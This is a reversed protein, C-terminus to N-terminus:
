LLRYGGGTQMIGGSLIHEVIARRFSTDAPADKINDKKINVFLYDLGDYSEDHMFIKFMKQFKVVNSSPPLMKEFAPDFLWTFCGAAKYDCDFYKPFFAKAQEFSDLCAAEDLQGGRPIHVSLFPDGKKLDLGLEEPPVHWVTAPEFQIRGLKFLKGRIHCSLWGYQSLGWEGNWNYHRNIWVSLDSVTDLLIDRPIRKENYWVEMSEIALTYVFAGFQASKGKFEENYKFDLSLDALKNKLTIAEASLAENECIARAAERLATRGEACLEYYESYKEFKEFMNM